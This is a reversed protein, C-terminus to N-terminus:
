DDKKEGLEKKKAWYLRGIEEWSLTRKALNERRTIAQLNDLHNNFPDGDIHDVDLNGEVEGKFWAYVLRGLPINRVKYSWNKVYYVKGSKSRVKRTIPVKTSYDYLSIVLYTVDNGYKHEATVKYPNKQTGHVYVTGDKHVDTIGLTQLDEKTLKKAMIKIKEKPKM